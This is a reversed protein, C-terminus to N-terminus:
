SNTKLAGTNAFGKATGSVGKVLGSLGALAANSAQRERAEAAARDANTKAANYKPKGSYGASGPGGMHERSGLQSLIFVVVVVGILLYITKRSIKLKM